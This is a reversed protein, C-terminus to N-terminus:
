GLRKALLASEEQKQLALLAADHREKLMARANANYTPIDAEDV